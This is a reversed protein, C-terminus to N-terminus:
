RMQSPLKQYNRREGQPLTSQFLFLSLLICDLIRREGQPLTSQFKTSTFCGVAVAFTAGRTPAHISIYDAPNIIKFDWHREGQPLTSQFGCFYTTPVSTSADSGKHSRPNFDDKDPRNRAVYDDSGKHSRPNFNNGIDSLTLMYLREGQPLTSQFKFIIM